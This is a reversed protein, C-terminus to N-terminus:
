PSSLIHIKYPAKEVESKWPMGDEITGLPKYSGLLKLGASTYANRYATGSHFYDFFTFSHAKDKASFVEIKIPQDECYKSVGLNTDLNNEPFRNNFTYWANEQKYAKSTPNTSILIGKESLSNKLSSLVDLMEDSRMEVLVFNCIILDFVGHKEISENKAICEFHASPMKERAIEVNAENLDVGVVDLTLEPLLNIQSALIQTSLGTGCGFDLVRIRDSYSSVRPYLHTELIKPIDRYALYLTSNLSLSDHEQTKEDYNIQNRARHGAEHESIM